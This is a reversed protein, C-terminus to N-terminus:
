GPVHRAVLQLGKKTLMKSPPTSGGSAPELRTGPPLETVDLQDLEATASFTWVAVQGARRAPLKYAVKLEGDILVNLLQDQVAVELVYDKGIKLPTTGRGAAPYVWRGDAGQRTFQVKPVSEELYVGNM